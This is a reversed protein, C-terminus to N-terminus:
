YAFDQQGIQKLAETVMEFECTKDYFYDAGLAMCHRRFEENAHNTLMITASQSGLRRIEKLVEIGSGVRLKIDLVVADPRLRLIDSVADDTNDAVGAVEVQHLDSLMALLREQVIPSDEVVFVKM